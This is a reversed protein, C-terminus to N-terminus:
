AGLERPASVTTDPKLDIKAEGTAPDYPYSVHQHILMWRGDIKQFIRTGRSWSVFRDQGPLQAQMRNLGWTVAIDGRVIIRLDPIDWSFEGPMADFGKRCVERVAAAGYYALPADHEYSVVNDAIKAMVGNLDKAAAKRFWDEFERRVEAEGEDSM